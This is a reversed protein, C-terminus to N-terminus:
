RNWRSYSLLEVSNQGNIWLVGGAEQFRFNIMDAMLIQMVLEGPPWATGMRGSSGGDNAWGYDNNPVIPIYCKTKWRISEASVGLVLRRQLQCGWWLCPFLSKQVKKSAKGYSFTFFLSFYTSISAMDHIFLLQAELYPLLHRILSHFSTFLWM